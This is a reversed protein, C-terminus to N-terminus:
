WKSADRGSLHGCRGVFLVLNEELQGRFQESGTIHRACFNTIFPQLAWAFLPEIGASIFYKFFDYSSKKLIIIIQFIFLKYM